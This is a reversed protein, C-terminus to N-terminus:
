HNGDIIAADEIVRHGDLVAGVVASKEAALADVARLPFVIAVENGADLIRSHSIAGLEVRGQRGAIDADGVALVSVAVRDDLYLDGVCKVRDGFIGADRTRYTAHTGDLHTDCWGSRGRFHGRGAARGM